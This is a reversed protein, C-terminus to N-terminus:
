IAFKTLDHNRIDRSPHVKLFVAILYDCKSHVVLIWVASTWAWLAYYIGPTSYFWLQVWIPLPTQISIYIYVSNTVSKFPGRESSCCINLHKWSMDEMLELVIFIWQFTRWCNQSVKKYVSEDHSFRMPMLWSFWIFLQMFILRPSNECEHISLTTGFPMSHHALIQIFHLKPFLYM